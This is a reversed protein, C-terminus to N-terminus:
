RERLARERARNIPKLLYDLVTKAGTLIDVTATMGPIIPLPEAQNGLHNRETRVRILFFPEGQDGMITDASIHELTASLGGFIAFDYATLKVLATQGPRLFAIDSPRILAEVLLNDEVPVIEVLGMGPQVVGGITNVNLQKVIGKVPSRVATRTVRDELAAGTERLRSLEATYSNLEDLAATRFNIRSEEIKNQIENLAAEINPVRANAANLDGKLDNVQRELRLLEVESMVGQKVLPRTIELERAALEYSKRQQAQRSSLEKLEHAKQTKQQQLIDISAQLNQQRSDYLAQEGQWLEASSDSLPTPLQFAIEDAEARLRRIKAELASTKLRSERYSSAFRTDDIRLLIQGKEVQEGEKILLESVIGGELNQVIQVQSSPIIKGEGRTVEDIEALSAWILALLIFATMSWLILHGAYLSRPNHLLKLENRM